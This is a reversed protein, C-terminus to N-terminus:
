VSGGQCCLYPRFDFRSDVTGSCSKGREATGLGTSGFAGSFTPYSGGCSFCLSCGRITFSKDTAGGPKTFQARPELPIAPASPKAVEVYVTQRGRFVVDPVHIMAFYMKSEVPITATMTYLEHGSTKGDYLTILLEVSGIAEITGKVPIAISAITEPGQAQAVPLAGLMALLLIQSAYWRM